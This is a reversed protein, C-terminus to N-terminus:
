GDGIGSVSGASGGILAGEVSEVSCDVDGTDDGGVVFGSVEEGADDSM